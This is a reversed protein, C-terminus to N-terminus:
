WRLNQSGDSPVWNLPSPHPVQCRRLSYLGPRFTSLCGWFKFDFQLLSHVTQKLIYYVVYKQLIITVISVWYQDKWLVWSPTPPYKAVGVPCVLLIMTNFKGWCLYTVFFIMLFLSFPFFTYVVLRPSSKLLCLNQVRMTTLRSLVNSITASM